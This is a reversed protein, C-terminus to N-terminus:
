FRNESVACGDGVLRHNNHLVAGGLREFHRRPEDVFFHQTYEERRKAVGDTGGELAEAKAEWENMTCMWECSGGLHQLGVLKGDDDCGRLGVNRM